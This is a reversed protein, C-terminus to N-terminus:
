GDAYMKRIDNICLERNKEIISTWKPDNSCLADISSGGEHYVWASGCIAQSFGHKKLRYSFEEDEYGAPYYEKIFGIRDFLSRWTLVCHFPLFGEDLVVNPSSTRNVSYLQSPAGDGPHNTRAAVMAVKKSSLVNLTKYMNFLCNVTLVCDSHIFAVLSNSTNRIGVNLSYGFGKHESNRIASIGSVKITEYLSQNPSFDDIVYLRYPTRVTRRVSEILKVVKEYAGHYPVIIDITPSNDYIIRSKIEEPM